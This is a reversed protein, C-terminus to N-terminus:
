SAEWKCFVKQTSIKKKQRKPATGLAYPLEWAIPEIPATAALRYVVAWRLAPDRVWRAFGPILGSDEHISTLNTVASGYHSSWCNNFEKFVSFKYTLSFYPIWEIMLEYTINKSLLPICVFNETVLILSHDSPINKSNPVPALTRGWFLGSVNGIYYFLTNRWLCSELLLSEQKLETLFVVLFSSIFCLSHRHTRKADYRVM